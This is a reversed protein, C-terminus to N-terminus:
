EDCKDGENEDTNKSNILELEYRIDGLKDNIIYLIFVIIGLCIYIIEEHEMNIM